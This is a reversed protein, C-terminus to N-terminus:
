FNSIYLLPILHRHKWNVAEVGGNHNRAPQQGSTMAEHSPCTNTAPFAMM